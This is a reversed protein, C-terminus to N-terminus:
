AFDRETALLAVAMVAALVAYMVGIGNAGVIPLVLGFAGVSTWSAAWAWRQGSRFPLWLVLLSLLNFMAFTAFLLRQDENEAIGFTGMAHNLLALVSVVILVWTAIRSVRSANM